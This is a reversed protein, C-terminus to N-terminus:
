IRGESTLFGHLRELFAGTPEREVSRCVEESKTRESALLSAVVEAHCGNEAPGIRKPTDKLM